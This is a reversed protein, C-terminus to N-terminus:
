SSHGINMERAAAMSAEKNIVATLHMATKGQGDVPSKM